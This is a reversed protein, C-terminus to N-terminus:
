RLCSYVDWNNYKYTKYSTSPLANLSAKYVRVQFNMPPLPLAYMPKLLRKPSTKKNKPKKENTTTKTKSVTEHTAKTTRPSSKYVLNVQFECFGVQRQRGLVPIM